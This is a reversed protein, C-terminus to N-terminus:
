KFASKLFVIMENWSAMDANANYAIPISFKEGTKTADPNTFAHTAGKYSKFVYPVNASDMQKKFLAVEDLNVFKDDEGHCILVKAKILDKNVPVGVLNGHFSVVAKLNSGLKAMNLVQAGGFCYGIAAIQNTDAQALTKIIKLAADFRKKALARDKYFEGALKGADEPNDATLGNGYLDIAFALYGLEALKKARSKAYDNLGWWEHVVIVVPLKTKISEDYVVFGKMNVNDLSYNLSQEKLSASKAMVKKSKASSNFTHLCILSVILLFTSTCNNKM